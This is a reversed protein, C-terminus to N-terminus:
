WDVAGAIWEDMLGAVQGGGHVVCESGHESGEEFGLEVASGDGIGVDLVFAADANRGVEHFFGVQPVAFFHQHCRDGVTRAQLGVRDGALAAGAM